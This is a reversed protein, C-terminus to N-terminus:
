GNYRLGAHIRGEDRDRGGRIAAVFAAIAALLSAAALGFATMIGANRATRAAEVAADTAQQALVEAEARATELADAAQQRADQAGTVVEDVRAEVQQPTLDTRAAVANILYQRDQDSIEGTRYIDSVISAAQTAIQEPDINAPDINAPRLLRNSLFETPNDQVDQPIAAGAANAVGSAIGSMAGGVASGATQVVAGAAQGATSAVAGATRAAAGVVSTLMVATLITGLGWVVLGNIGDRATVEDRTASGVRRRMRGAIYGGTLYAAILTFLMWVATLVLEMTSGDDTGDLTISSLGLATGFTTLLVGIAVAVVTGAFIAPWDVYSGDTPTTPQTTNM